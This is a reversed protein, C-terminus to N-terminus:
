QRQRMNSRLTDSSVQRISDMIQEVEAAAKDCNEVSPVLGMGMSRTVRVATRADVLGEGGDSHKSYNVLADAALAANEQSPMVGM